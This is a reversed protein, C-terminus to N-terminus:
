AGCPLKSFDITSQAEGEFKVARVVEVHLRLIQQFRTFSTLLSKVRPKVERRPVVHGDRHSGVGSFIQREPCCSTGRGMVVMEMAEMGVVARLHTLDILIAHRVVQSQIHPVGYQPLSAGPLVFESEREVIHQVSLVRIQHKM